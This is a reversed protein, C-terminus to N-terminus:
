VTEQTHKSAAEEARAGWFADEGTPTPNIIHNGEEQRQLDARRGPTLFGMPPQYDTASSDTTGARHEPHTMSTDGHQYALPATIAQATCDPKSDSTVGKGGWQEHTWQHRHHWLEVVLKKEQMSYFKLLPPLPKQPSQLLLWTHVLHKWM